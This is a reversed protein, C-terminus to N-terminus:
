GQGMSYLTYAQINKHCREDNLFELPTRGILDLYYRFALLGDADQNPTVQYDEIWSKMLKKKDYQALLPLISAVNDEGIESIAEDYRSKPHSKKFLEEFPFSEIPFGKKILYLSSKFPSSKKLRYQIPRTRVKFFDPTLSLIKSTTFKVVDISDKKLASFFVGDLVNRQETTDLKDILPALKEFLIFFTETDPNGGANKLCLFKDQSFDFKENMVIYRFIERRNANKGGAAWTLGNFSVRVGADRLGLFAQLGHNKLVSYMYGNLDISTNMLGEAIKAVERRNDQQIADRLRVKLTSIHTV